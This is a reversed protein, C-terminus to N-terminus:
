LWLARAAWSQKTLRHSIGSKAGTAPEGQASMPRVAVKSVISRKGLTVIGPKALKNGGKGSLGSQLVVDPPHFLM